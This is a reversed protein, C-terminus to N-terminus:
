DDRPDDSEAEAQATALNQFFALVHDVAERASRESLSCGSQVPKGSRHIEWRWMFGLDEAFAQYIVGNHLEIREGVVEGAAIEIVSTNDALVDVEEGDMGKLFVEMEAVPDPQKM